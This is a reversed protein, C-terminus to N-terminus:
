HRKHDAAGTNASAPYHAVIEGALPDLTVEGGYPLVLQPRPHGFPVNLALLLDTRYRAINALLYEEYAARRAARIAAAVPADRDEVVPRAFMLGAAAELYGREGLARIWRGVFDAPPMVESTEFILITGELEGATPLRDALALQDIVELCGGWTRGRVTRESGIFEVPLAPERDVDVTLARPDSWDLGYDESDKTRPLVVDGGGFLAARLTTLHEADVRRGQGFHVQTSGGHFAGVGIRWLWNLINTNDSYGFFPKPDALPLSPDLHATVRIQDNGGVAAFIARIHPDAFAANVDAAREEPTASMKRTTPYEVVEVGLLREVREMAQEHIRPFYAPAAWAPSLVAVKDGPRAPIPETIAATM